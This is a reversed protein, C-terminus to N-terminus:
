LPWVLCVLQFLSSSFFLATLEAPALLCGARDSWCLPGNHRPARIVGGAGPPQFPVSAPPQPDVWPSWGVPGERWREECLCRWSLGGGGSKSGEAAGTLVPITQGKIVWFGVEVEVGFCPKREPTGPHTAM